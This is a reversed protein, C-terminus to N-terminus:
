EPSNGFADDEAASVAKLMLAVFVKREQPKLAALMNGVRHRHQKALAALVQQGSKTLVLGVARRDAEDRKRAVLDAGVLRDVVTTATSLPSGLESAVDRMICADRRGLLDIVVLDSLNLRAYPHRADSMGEAKLARNLRGLATRLQDVLDPEPKRLVPVEIRFGCPFDEWTLMERARTAEFGTKTTRRGREGTALRDV